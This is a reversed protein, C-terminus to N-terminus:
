KASARQLRDNIARGLGEDPLKEAMIIKLKKEDLYHLAQYLNKAAEELNGSPSLVFQNEKPVGDVYKTYAIVAIDKPSFDKIVNEFDKVLILKTSPSYHYALMGPALPAKEVKDKIVIKKYIKKVEEISIAGLRYIVPVEDEFGIVTSEIGRNCIGGDLIYPIKNKLQKMVHEPKTPSIYGFPNASPAALPFTLNQLLELALEHKPIRIAVHKLGSTVIGPIIDKKLLLITLPGPSFAELLQWAVTPVNEVLASLKDMHSIHVILPNSFPRNKVTYIKRVAMDSFANGALGYVTETPIAVLENKTLLEIAFPLDKGILTEWQKDSM